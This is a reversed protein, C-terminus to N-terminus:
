PKSTGSGGGSPADANVRWAEALLLGIEDAPGVWWIGPAVHMAVHGVPAAPAPSDPPLHIFDVMTYHAALPGKLKGRAGALGQRM